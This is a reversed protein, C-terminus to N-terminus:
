DRSRRGASPPGLRHGIWPLTVLLVRRGSRGTAVLQRQHGSLGRGAGGGPGRAQLRHTGPPPVSLLSVELDIWSPALAGTVGRSIASTRPSIPANPSPRSGALSCSRTIARLRASISRM